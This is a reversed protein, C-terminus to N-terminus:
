FWKKLKRRYENLLKDLRKSIKLVNKDNNDYAKHLKKRLKEIRDLYKKEKENGINITKNM